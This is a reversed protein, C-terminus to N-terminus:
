QQAEPIWIRPQELSFPPELGGKGIGLGDIGREPVSGRKEQVLQADPFHGDPNGAADIGGDGCGKVHVDQPRFVDEQYIHGALVIRFQGFPQGLFHRFGQPGMVGDKGDLFHHVLGDELEVACGDVVVAGALFEVQFDRGKGCFVDLGPVPPARTSAPRAEM